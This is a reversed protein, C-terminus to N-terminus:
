MSTNVGARALPTRRWQRPGRTTSWGLSKTCTPNFSLSTKDNSTTQNGCQGTALRAGFRVGSVVEVGRSKFIPLNENPTNHLEDCAVKEGLIDEVYVVLILEVVGEM